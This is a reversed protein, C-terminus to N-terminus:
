KCKLHQGGEWEGRCLHWTGDERERAELLTSVWEGVLEPRVGGADEISSCCAEESGLAEGEVIALYPWGRNCMNSSGPTRGHISKTQHNLGQSSQTALSTSITIGTPSCDGEAGEEKPTGTSLHNATLVQVQRLWILFRQSSLWVLIRGALLEQCWCYHRPKTDASPISGLTPRDRSPREKLRQEM